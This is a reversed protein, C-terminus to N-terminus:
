VVSPTEYFTLTQPTALKKRFYDNLIQLDDKLMASLSREGGLNSFSIDETAWSTFAAASSSVQSRRLIYTAALVIAYQDQQEIIPATSGFTIYPNRFVDGELYTDPLYATGQPTTVTIYGVPADGEVILDETFVRYKSSWRSELFKVASIVATRIISDSYVTGNPDGFYLRVDGMLFDINRPTQYFQVSTTM